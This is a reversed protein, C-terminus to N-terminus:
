DFEEGYYIDFCEGGYASGNQELHNWLETFARHSEESINEMTIICRHTLARVPAVERVTVEYSM